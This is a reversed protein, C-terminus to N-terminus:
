HSCGNTAHIMSQRLRSPSGNLMLMLPPKDPPRIM